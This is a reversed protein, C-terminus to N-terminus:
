RFCRRMSGAKAPCTAAARRRWCFCRCGSLVQGRGPVVAHGCFGARFHAEAGAEDLATLCRALGQHAPAFAPAADLAALYRRKAGAYDEKELLLNGLGTLAVINGPDIAVARSYASCAAQGYGDAEALAGLEVLAAVCDADEQLVRLYVERARAYEGRGALGRAEHLATVDM